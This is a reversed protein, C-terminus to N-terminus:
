GARTMRKWWGRRPPGPPEEPEAPPAPAAVPPMPAAVPAAPEIQVAAPVVPEVPSATPQQKAIPAVAPPPEPERYITPAFPEPMPAPAIAQAPAAIPEVPRNWPWDHEDGPGAIRGTPVYPRDLDHGPGILPRGPPPSGADVAQDTEGREGRTRGGRRGRRRRRGRREGEDEDRPRSDAHRQPEGHALAPEVAGLDGAAAEHPTESPAAAQAPAEGVPRQGRHQASADDGDRGRRRRRRRRGGREEREERSERSREEHESREAPPRREEAGEDPATRGSLWAIASESTPPEAGVPAEDHAAVAPMEDMHVQRIATSAPAIADRLPAREARYAPAILDEAAAFSIHAFSRQELAAIQTRKNNLLYFAISPAVHIILEQGHAKAAEAEIARLVHLAGSETSRIFGTGACHQCREHSVEILSPRLRQRSLELLGFASIRGIQIRARDNKMADKFRREVAHQNRSEEMDIFDIVILGALDRLRLQRAIEDSAELNTKLATEEIHRERTARGSNVDIAVLAETPNIVIYGGSRLRVTNAHIEDLQQEVNHRQYLRVASDAYRKVREVHHPMLMTMFERAQRYSEDGDVQIEDIDSSYVDRIARKILSGEEYILSPANSKLTLDRIEEWLRQLYEYDRRIEQMSREMGATRLIVAMGDPLALEEIIHKLRKRDQQNTIRRSIGGGRDTNPMLVCYRGALSLYTTLAAGKNGREEKVVQVLLVQRRKIVEQIKYHRQSRSRRQRREEEEEAIDDGGIQELPELPAEDLEGVPEAAGMTDASGAAVVTEEAAGGPIVERDGGAPDTADATATASLTDVAGTSGVHPLPPPEVLPGALFPQTHDLAASGRPDDLVLDGPPPGAQKAEDTAVPDSAAAPPVSDEAQSPGASGAEDFYGVSAPEPGTGDHQHAPQAETSEASRGRGRRRGRREQREHREEEEEDDGRLLAERDAIPIRWYDPHIENFALFGHRNGGYEVFAAQLSPEVRTVKALYINGKLQKKTATEFDFEELRTGSTVVVRTEEPHTADILMRKAM